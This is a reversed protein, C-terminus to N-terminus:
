FYKAVGSRIETCFVLCIRQVNACRPGGGFVCKHLWSCSRLAEGHLIGMVVLPSSDVNQEGFIDSFRGLERKQVAIECNMSAECAM